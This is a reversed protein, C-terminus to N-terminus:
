GFPTHAARKWWYARALISPLREAIFSLLRHKVTRNDELLRFIRRASILDNALLALKAESMLREREFRKIQADIAAVEPSGEAMTARLKLLPRQIATLMRAEDASMSDPRRRYFGLPTGNFVITFGRAAARLWFDYDESGQKLSTDFGGICDFVSRRFVSLICVSDEVRILTLLDIPYLGPAVRRWLTGDLQGGLNLANASVIAVDPRVSAFVRMQEALYEPTWLDDSDLLAFFQGRAEALARNRAASVGQNRQQIIRIRPDQHAFRQAVAVTGDTSGDDVIVLEFDDFTQALASQLTEALYAESNYAPVLISVAPERPLTRPM